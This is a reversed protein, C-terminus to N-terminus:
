PVGSQNALPLYLRYTAPTASPTPSPATPSATVSTSTPTATAPAPITPAPTTPTTQDPPTNTPQPADLGSVGRLIFPSYFENARRPPIGPALTEHRRDIGVYSGMDMSGTASVDTVVVGVPQDASVRASGYTGVPFGAISPPWWLHAGGPALTAECAAGCATFRVGRSDTFLITASASADGLNMVQVATTLDSSTHKNRILPLLVERDGVHPGPATYAAAAFSGQVRDIVAAAVKGGTAEVVAAATCGAPLSGAISGAPAPGPNLNVLMGSSAAVDFEPQSFAQGQCAGMVGRYRIAVRIPASEANAVAIWSSALAGGTDFADPPRLPAAARVVPAYIKAAALEVPVGEFSYVGKTSSEIDVVANVAVPVDARIRAAGITQLPVTIFGLHRGLDITTSTGPGITVGITILPAPDGYRHLALTANAPREADTNQITVLSMQDEFGKTVLPLLVDTGAASDNSMAASGSAPWDARAVGGIARDASVIAAYTGDVLAPDSPLYFNGATDPAIQPRALAVPAGGRQNYFSGLVTASRDKDLNQVMLGSVGAGAIGALRSSPTASSPIAPDFAIAPIVLVLTLLMTTYWHISRRM